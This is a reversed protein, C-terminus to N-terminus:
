VGPLTTPQALDGVYQTVQTVTNSIASDTPLSLGGNANVWVLADVSGIKVAINQNGDFFGQPLQAFYTGTAARGDLRQFRLISFRGDRRVQINTATWGNTLDATITRWGTDTSRRLLWAM